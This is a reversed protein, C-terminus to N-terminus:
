SCMELLQRFSLARREADIPIGQVGLITCLKGESNYAAAYGVESTVEQPFDPRNHWRLYLQFEEGPLIPRRPLTSGGQLLVGGCKGRSTPCLQATLLLALLQAAPEGLNFGPVVAEGLFHGPCSAPNVIIMARASSNQIDLQATRIHQQEPGYFPLFDAYIETRDIKWAQGPTVDFPLLEGPAFPFFRDRTACRFDRDVKDVPISYM